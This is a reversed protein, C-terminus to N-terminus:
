RGFHAPTLRPRTPLTARSGDVVEQLQERYLLLEPPPGAWKVLKIPISAGPIFFELVDGAADSFNDAKEFERDLADILRQAQRQVETM